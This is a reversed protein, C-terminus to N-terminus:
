LDAFVKQVHHKGEHHHIVSKVFIHLKVNIGWFFILCYYLKEVSLSLLLLIIKECTTVLKKKKLFISNKFPDLSLSNKLPFYDGLNNLHFIIKM